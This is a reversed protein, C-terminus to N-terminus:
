RRGSLLVVLLLTTLDLGGKAPDGGGSTGPLLLLLPLLTTLQNQSQTVVRVPQGSADRLPQGTNPDTAEVTQQTLLPLLVALMKTQQLDARTSDIGKKRDEAEKRLIAAVRDQEASLSNARTEIAKVATSLTEIKADLNRAATQVQAQSAASPAPRQTFSSRRSPTRVSPQRRSRRSREEFDGLDLSELLSDIDEVYGNM